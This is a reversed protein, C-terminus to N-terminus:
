KAPQAHESAEVDPRIVAVPCHAQLSSAGDSDNAAEAALGKEILIRIAKARSGIRSAFRWEDAQGLLSKPFMVPIRETCRERNSEVKNM